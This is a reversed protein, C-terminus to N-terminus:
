TRARQSICNLWVKMMQTVRDPSEMPSMHGCNQIASLTAHKIKQKLLQSDEINFIADNESHIILTPCTIIDLISILDGRMMMAKEQNIFASINRELMMKVQCIVSKNYVFLNLLKNIIFTFNNKEAELIMSQRFNHKDNSDPLASTNFLGLALIQKPYRKIIELAVWGGMSHGALAFSPPADIMAASVMEDPIPAHSLDPIIIEAIDSLHSCQYSWLEADSLLGPLLILPFKTM